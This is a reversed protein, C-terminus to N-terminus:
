GEGHCAEDVESRGNEEQEAGNGTRTFVLPGAARLTVVVTVAVAVAIPGAAAAQQGAAIPVTVPAHEVGTTPVAAPVIATGDERHREPIETALTLRATVVIELDRGM